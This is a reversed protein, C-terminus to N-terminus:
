DAIAVPAPLSGARLNLSLREAETMNTATIVFTPEDVFEGNELTQALGPSMQAAFVVAGDRVTLLCYGTANEPDSRAERTPCNSRGVASTFGYEQSAQAYERAASETLTVSVHPQGQTGSPRRASGVETFDENSLLTRTRYGDSETPYRAIMRVRGRDRLVEAVASRNTDSDVVVGWTGDVSTRRAEADLGAADLRDNVVRVTEGATRETPGATVDSAAVDYGRAALADRVADPGVDRALVEVTGDGADVRVDGRYVDLRDALHDRLSSEADAGVDVGTVTVGHFPARLVEADTQDSDVTPSGDDDAVCGAVGGVLLVAVVGVAVLRWQVTACM